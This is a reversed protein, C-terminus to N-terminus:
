NLDNGLDCTYLWEVRDGDKLTCNGCSVSPVTGNVRYVWGSLDGFDLEYLYAIGTIYANGATGRNETQIGYQKAAAILVDYVTSGSDIPFQTEPLIVGDAPIYSSDAKGAVTDCRITMTVSGATGSASPEGSYYQGRTQINTFCIFCVAAAALALVFLYSKRNRKKRLRLVLCAALAAGAAALSAWLKYGPGGATEGSSIKEAGGISGSYPTLSSIVGAEAAASSANEGAESAIEESSVTEFSASEPAAAEVASDSGSGPEAAPREGPSAHSEPASASATEVKASYGSSDFSGFIYFPGRGSEACQLAMLADFTQMTASESSAGGATHSFSGDSLRYKKLVDLLTDGNKIFRSDTLPDVCVFTLAIVVQATSEADEAGYNVYDGSASQASALFGVAGEVANEVKPDIRRWPALAQVAMATVDVDSATGSIAWGGDSLRLSLLKAVVDSSTYQSSKAGNNLLHLGFIWSMVGQAGISDEMTSNVFPDSGRGCALLALACRQRTAAAEPRNQQVYSSLAEAYFTFDLSEGSQKLAFAYWESTTGAGSTLSGNLWSQMSDAGSKQEEYVAIGGILSKVEGATDGSQASAAAPHLLLALSFLCGLAARRLDTKM